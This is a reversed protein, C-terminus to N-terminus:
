GPERGWGGERPSCHNSTNAFLTLGLEKRSLFGKNPLPSMPASHLRPWVTPSMTPHGARNRSFSLALAFCDLPMQQHGGLFALERLGWDRVQSGVRTPFHSAHKEHECGQSVQGVRRGDLARTPFSSICVAREACDAVGQFMHCTHSFAQRGPSVPIAFRGTSSPAPEGTLLGQPPLCGTRRACVFGWLSSSSIGLSLRWALAGGEM